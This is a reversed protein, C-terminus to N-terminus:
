LLMLVVMTYRCRCCDLLALKTDGKSAISFLGDHTGNTPCGLQLLQKALSGAPWEIHHAFRHEALQLMTVGCAIAAMQVAAIMCVTIVQMVLVM